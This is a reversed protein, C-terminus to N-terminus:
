SVSMVFTVTDAYIGSYAPTETLASGIFASTIEDPNGAPVSLVSSGSVADYGNIQMKYGVTVDSNSKLRLRGDFEMKVLLQTGYPILVDSACVDQEDAPTQDKPAAEIYAPISVTYTGAIEDDTPDDPDNANVISGVRHYVTTDGTDTEAAFAPVSTLCLALVLVFATFIKKM